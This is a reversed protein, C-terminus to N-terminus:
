PQAFDSDFDANETGAPTSVYVTPLYNEPSSELSDLSIAVGGGGEQVDYTFDASSLGNEIGYVEVTGDTLQLCVVFSGRTLSDLICKVDEGIGTVLFQAKHIFQPHGLDSETKDVLGKVSTGSEPSLFRYGTKGAKLTFATTYNCTGVSPLTNTITDIDSKNIVVAQQYYKRVPPNCATDLGSLLIGCITEIAM